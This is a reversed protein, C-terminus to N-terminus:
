QVPLRRERADNENSETMPIDLLFALESPAMHANRQSLWRLMEMKDETNM